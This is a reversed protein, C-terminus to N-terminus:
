PETPLAVAEYDMPRQYSNLKACDKKIQQVKKFLNYYSKYM